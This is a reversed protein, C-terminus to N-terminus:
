DAQFITQEAGCFPCYNQHINVEEISDTLTSIQAEMDEMMKKLTIGIQREM